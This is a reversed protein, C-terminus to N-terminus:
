VAGLLHRALFEVQANKAENGFRGFGAHEQPAGTTPWTTVRILGPDAHRERYSRRLCDIFVSMGHWPVMQDAESHLVLLPITAFTAIHRMADLRAVREAPHDVIWRQARPVGAKEPFYLGELWGTTGELAAARFGAPAHAPAPDCLRRLVAMGGASMGGIGLRTQDFVGGWQSGALAALVQDIEGLAQELVDLTRAPHQLEEDFREGHGPLDIAVAAIGSRVWRLYRGPDLEKNVTRGHMWFMVPAPNEWDPHALLTPVATPGLRVTRARRALDKPFQSFRDDM